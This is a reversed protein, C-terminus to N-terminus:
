AIRVEGAIIRFRNWQQCSERPCRLWITGDPTKPAEGATTVFSVSPVWGLTSGCADGKKRPDPHPAHCTALMTKAASKM